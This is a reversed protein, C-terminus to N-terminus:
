KRNNIRYKTQYVTQVSKFNYKKMVESPSMEDCDILFQIRKEETWIQSEKNKLKDKKPAQKVAKEKQVNQPKELSTEKPNSVELLKQEEERKDLMNKCIREVTEDIKLDSINSTVEEMKKTVVEELIKTIFDVGPVTQVVGLQRALAKDVEDMVDDSVAGRYQGEKFKTISKTYVHECEVISKVGSPMIFPIHMPLHDYEKSSIIVVNAIPAKINNIDCSVVLYYRDKSEMIHPTTENADRKLWWIQGRKFLMSRQESM